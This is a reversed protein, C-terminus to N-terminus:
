DEMIKFDDLERIAQDILEKLQLAGEKTLSFQCLGVQFVVLKKTGLYTGLVTLDFDKGKVSGILKSTKAM